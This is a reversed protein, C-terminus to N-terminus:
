SMVSSPHGKHSSFYYKDNKIECKWLTAETEDTTFRAGLEDHTMYFYSTRGFPRVYSRIKYYYGHEPKIVDNDGINTLATLPENMWNINKEDLDELIECTTTNFVTAFADEFNRLESLETKPYGIKGKNRYLDVAM